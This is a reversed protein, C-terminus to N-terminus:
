ARSSSYRRRGVQIKRATLAYKFANWKTAFVNQVYMHIFDKRYRTFQVKADESCLTRFKETIVPKKKKVITPYRIHYSFREDGATVEKDVDIDNIKIIDLTPVRNIVIVSIDKRM